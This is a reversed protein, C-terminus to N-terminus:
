ALYVREKGLQKPDHDKDCDYLGWSTPMTRDQIACPVESRYDFQFTLRTSM